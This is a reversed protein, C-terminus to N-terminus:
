AFEDISPWHIGTGQAILRFENLQDLSANELRKHNELSDILVQKTNLYIVIRNERILVSEIRLGKSVIMDSIPDYTNHSTNMGNRSLILQM